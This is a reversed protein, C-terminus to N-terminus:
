FRFHWASVNLLERRELEELPVGKAMESVIKGIVMPVAYRFRVDKPLDNINNSPPEGYEEKLSRWHNRIAQTDAPPM